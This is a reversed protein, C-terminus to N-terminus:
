DSVKRDAPIICAEPSLLFTQFDLIDELILKAIVILIGLEIM